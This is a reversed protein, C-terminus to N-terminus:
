RESEGCEALRRKLAENEEQLRTLEEDVAILCDRRTKSYLSIYRTDPHKALVVLYRWTALQETDIM